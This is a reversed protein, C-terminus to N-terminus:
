SEQIPTLDDVREIEALWADARKTQTFWHSNVNTDGQPDGYVTYSDGNFDTESWQTSYWGEHVYKLDKFDKSKIVDLDNKAQWFSESTESIFGQPQVKGGYLLGQMQGSRYVMGDFYRGFFGAFSALFLSWLAIRLKCWKSEQKVLNKIDSPKFAFRKMM